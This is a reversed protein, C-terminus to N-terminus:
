ITLHSHAGPKMSRPRSVKGVSSSARPVNETLQLRLWLTDINNERFIAWCLRFMYSIKLFLIMYIYISANTPTMIEYKVCVKSGEHLERKGGTKDEKMQGTVSSYGYM